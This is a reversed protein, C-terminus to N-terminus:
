FSMSSVGAGPRDAPSRSDGAHVGRHAERFAQRDRRRCPLLEEDIRLALGEIKELHVRADLDLM